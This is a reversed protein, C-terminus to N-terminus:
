KSIQLNSLWGFTVLFPRGLLAATKSLYERRTTRFRSTRSKPNKLVIGKTRSRCGKAEDPDGRHFGQM